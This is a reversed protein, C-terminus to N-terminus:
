FFFFTQASIKRNRCRFDLGPTRIIERLCATSDRKRRRRGSQPSCRESFMDRPELLYVTWLLLVCYSCLNSWSAAHKEEWMYSSQDKNLSANKRCAASMQTLHHTCHHHPAPNAWDQWPKLAQVSNRFHKLKLKKPSSLYQFKPDIHLILYDVLWTLLSTHPIASTLM